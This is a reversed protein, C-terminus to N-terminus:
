RGSFRRRPLDRRDNKPGKRRRAERREGELKVSVPRGNIMLHEFAGLVERSYNSDAELLATRDLIKIKGIRIDSRGTMDNIRGILRGPNVGDRKGVNFLFRAFRDCPANKPLPRRKGNKKPRGATKKQERHERAPANLDPADRYSALYRDLERSLLRRILEERDLSELVGSVESLLPAIATEDVAQNQIDVLCRAAQARLIDEGTPVQGQEFTKGLRKEIARIKYKERMHIIAISVGARGARGTRGSRHTYAAEEDPLTYHVVHTLNQVDLGRAAVDTAVLLQLRRNRFKGMVWDRQAQSLEGHLADAHYGDRMLNQAVEKTEQRTRCFIIAYMDPECDVIRRLAGYRHKAPVLCCQHRINDAGANRRGVTIELPDKLYGSAIRAVGPPMTASFLYTTKSAPTKELIASLEEQFGMQLMEDAEDLVLTRVGSLDVRKRGIFDNLRGPTAVIVHAGRRLQHVQEPISAGGYVAAIRLSSDKGAFGAMDRAVQVCLERTPCLVLAQVHGAGPDAMQVLPIGFAATKGTGTQALAVLDRAQGLAAPIVRAQIPTPDDFGLAMLAGVIDARVGMESFSMM